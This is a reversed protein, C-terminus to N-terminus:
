NKHAAEWYKLPIITKPAIDPIEDGDDHLAYTGDLRLVMIDGVNLEVPLAVEEAYVSDRCLCLKEDEIYFKDKEMPTFIIRNEDMDTIEMKIEVYDKYESSESVDQTKSLEYDDYSISISEYPMLANSLVHGSDANIMTTDIAAGSDGTVLTRNIYMLSNIMVLTTMNVGSEVMSGGLSKEYDVHYVVKSFDENWEVSNRESIQKFHAEAGRILKENNAILNKKQEETVKLYMRGKDFVMETYFEDPNAPLTNNQRDIDELVQEYTPKGIFWKTKENLNYEQVPAAPTVAETEEPQPQKVTQCGTLTFAALLCLFVKKFKM